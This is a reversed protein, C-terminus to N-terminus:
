PGGDGGLRCRGIHQARKWGDSPRSPSRGRVGPDRCLGSLGSPAPRPPATLLSARGEPSSLFRPCPARADTAGAAPPGPCRAPLSRWTLDPCGAACPVATEDGRTAPCRSGVHSGVAEQVRLTWVRFDRFTFTRGGLPLRLAPAACFRPSDHAARWGGASAAPFREERRAPRASLPTQAAVTACACAPAPGLRAAIPWM